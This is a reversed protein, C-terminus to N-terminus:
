PVIGTVGDDMYMDMVMILTTSRSIDAKRDAWISTKKM